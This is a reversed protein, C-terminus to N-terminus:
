TRPPSLYARDAGDAQSALPRVGARRHERRIVLAYWLRLVDVGTKAIRRFNFFQSKGFARHYHHVPVEVIRFGGDEIKKMMELCIVGSTKSLDIREFIARRLLRFDCDVDRVTLGFMLSVIHHYARGIVIRHIPDARSIKYGNVLDIQPTMKAWLAALEAPDYQADGDTYFIFEKTASRFGTQLAGGYGRNGAHHVVRVHPYTRALEDVIEATADGSGDNVVIVEYDPTLESAVQVARIVMSAITGSDNYAPFFVSLGAPKEPPSV